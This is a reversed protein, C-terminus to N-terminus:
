RPQIFISCDGTIGLTANVVERNVTLVLLFLSISVTRAAAVAELLLLSVIIPILSCALVTM